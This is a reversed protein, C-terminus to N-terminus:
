VGLKTIMRWVQGLEGNPATAPGVVEFGLHDYFEWSDKHTEGSYLVAETYGLRTIEDLVRNVLLKGVGGGRNKVALIYLEAPNLTKTFERMHEPVKRFGTAGVVQGDDEAVFYKLRQEISDPANNVTDNLRNSLRERFEADPWYLAFIDEISSVDKKKLNM